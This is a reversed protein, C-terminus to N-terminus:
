RQLVGAASVVAGVCGGGNERYDTCEHTTFDTPEWKLLGRNYGYRWLIMRGDPFLIWRAGYGIALLVAQNRVVAVEEALAKKGIAKM